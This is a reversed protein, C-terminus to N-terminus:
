GLRYAPRSRRPGGTAEDQSHDTHRCHHTPADTDEANPAAEVTSTAVVELKPVTRVLAAPKARYVSGLSWSPMLPQVPEHAETHGARVTGAPVVGVAPVPTVPVTAATVWALPM